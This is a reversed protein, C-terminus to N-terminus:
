ERSQRWGAEGGLFVYFVQMLSFSFVNSDSDVGVVFPFQELPSSSSSVADVVVLQPAIFVVAVFCSAFCDEELPSLSRFAM